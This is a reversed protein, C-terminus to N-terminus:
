YTFRFLNSNSQFIQILKFSVSHIEALSCPTQHTDTFCSEVNTQAFRHSDSHTQHCALGQCGNEVGNQVAFEFLIPLYLFVYDLHTSFPNQMAEASSEQWQVRCASRLSFFPWGCQDFTLQRGWHIGRGM